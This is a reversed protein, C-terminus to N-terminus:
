AFPSIYKSKSNNWIFNFFAKEDVEKYNKGLENNINALLHRIYNRYTYM